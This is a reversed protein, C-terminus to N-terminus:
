PKTAYRYGVGRITVIRRPHDPRKEIKERLRRIHVDINRSSGIASRNLAEALLKDRSFVQRPHSALFHLLKFEMRSLKITRGDVEVENASFDFILGGAETTETRGGTHIENSSIAASDHSVPGFLQPPHKVLVGNMASFVHNLGHQQSGLVMIPLARLRGQLQIFMLVAVGNSTQAKLERIIKNLDNNDFDQDVFGLDIGLTRLLEEAEETSLPSNFRPHNPLNDNTSEKITLVEEIVM